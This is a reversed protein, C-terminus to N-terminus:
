AAPFTIKKEPAEHSDVAIELAPDAGRDEGQGCFACFFHNVSQAEHIEASQLNLRTGVYNEKCVPDCARFVIIESGIVPIVIEHTFIKLMPKIKELLLEERWPPRVKRELLCLLGAM